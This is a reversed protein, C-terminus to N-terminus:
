TAVPLLDMFTMLIAGGTFLSWDTLPAGRGLHAAPPPGQQCQTM